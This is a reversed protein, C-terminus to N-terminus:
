TSPSWGFADLPAKSQARDDAGGHGSVVMQLRSELQKLRHLQADSFQCQTGRILELRCDRIIVEAGAAMAPTYENAQTALSELLTRLNLRHDTPM